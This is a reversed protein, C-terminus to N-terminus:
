DFSFSIFLTQINKKTYRMLNFGSSQKKGVWEVWRKRSRDTSPRTIVKNGLALLDEVGLLNRTVKPTTRHL